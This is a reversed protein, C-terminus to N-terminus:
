KQEKNLMKMKLTKGYKKDTFWLENLHNTVSVKESNLLESIVIGFIHLIEIPQDAKKDM